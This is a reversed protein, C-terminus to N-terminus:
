RGVCATLGPTFAYLWISGLAFVPMLVYTAASGNAAVRVPTARQRQM